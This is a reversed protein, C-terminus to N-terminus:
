IIIKRLAFVFYECPPHLANPYSISINKLSLLSLLQERSSFSSFIKSITFQFSENSSFIRAWSQISSTIRQIAYHSSYHIECDSYIVPKANEICFSTKPAVPHKADATRNFSLLTLASGLLLIVLRTWSSVKM